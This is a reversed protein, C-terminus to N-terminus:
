GLLRLWFKRTKWLGWGFCMVLAAIGIGTLWKQFKTQRYITKTKNVTVKYYYNKREYNATNKSTKSSASHWKQIYVTDAKQMWNTIYKGGNITTSDVYMKIWSGDNKTIMVSDHVYISDHVYTTKNIIREPTKCSCQIICTVIVLVWFAITLLFPILCSGESEKDNYLRIM